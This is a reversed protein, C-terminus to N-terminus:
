PALPHKIMVPIPSRTKTGNGLQGYSNGGWAWIIGNEDLAFCSSFGGSIATIVPLDHQSSVNFATQEGQAGPITPSVVGNGIQGDTNDGWTWVVGNKDLAITHLNAAHIAKIPSSLPQEDTVNVPPSIPIGIPHSGCIGNYSNWGWGYVTGQSDLAFAHNAYGANIDTIVDPLDTYYDESVKLPSKSMAPGCGTMGTYGSGWGWIKGYVDLVLTYDSGAAVKQMAPMSITKTPHEKWYKTINVPYRSVEVENGVQYEIGGGWAWVNGDEDLALTHKGNSSIQTMSPIENATGKLHATINRPQYRYFDFMGSGDGLLGGIGNSGWTWVNGNVDLAVSHWECAVASKMAPMDYIESINIPSTSNSTTGDGLEGCLNFGWAWLVGENDIALTHDGQSSV